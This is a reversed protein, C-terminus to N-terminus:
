QFMKEVETRKVKGGSSRPLESVILFQIPVKYRALRELCFSRVEDADVYVSPSLQLAAVVVEGLRDNPRGVVACAVVGPYKMLVREVEAPYINAGGRFITDVKRDLIYLFGDGDLFGIDGTRLEGDQLALGTEVPRMWYGLMPTYISAYPGNQAASVCVEGEEFPKLLKGSDNRISVQLTPFPRGSSGPRHVEGRHEWAVGNLHETLGYANTPSLGFRETFRVRLNEPPDAGGVIVEELSSLDHKTITPDSVLDHLVTPVTHLLNIKENRVWDALGRGDTRNAAHCSGGSFLSLVPGLVMMNLVALPFVCGTRSAKNRGTTRIGLVTAVMNHQSHVVGKPRGTTGSSYAIAAPAFPDQITGEHINSRGVVESWSGDDICLHTTAIGEEILPNNSTSFLLESGSDFFIFRQEPGALAPSIGVWIAGLRMVALFAVVVEPCNPVCAMVRVGPRVGISSLAGAAKGTLEHLTRFDYRADGVVLALRNPWREASSETAAAVTQAYPSPLFNESNPVFSEPPLNM